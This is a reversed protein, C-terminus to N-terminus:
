APGAQQEWSFVDGEPLNTLGLRRLMYLLQARHHMSHTIIHAIGGGYTKEMPPRDLVDLWREDWRGGRAVCRAVNALDGSARELRATLSPITRRHGQAGEDARVPQGGMLDAWVEVNRIIHALTARVTRHGIDIERDLQEDTLERCRLLLQGTTWADHALLRDLLDMLLNQIESKSNPLTWKEIKMKCNLIGPHRGLAGGLHTFDNRGACTFSRLVSGRIVRIQASLFSSVFYCM